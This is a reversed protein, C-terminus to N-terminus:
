QSDLTTTVPSGQAPTVSANQLQITNGSLLTCTAGSLDLSQVFSANGPHIVVVAHDVVVTTEGTASCEVGIMHPGTTSFVTGYNIGLAFGSNPHDTVDQRLGGSPITVSAGAITVTVGDVRANCTVPTNATDFAFGSLTSKGSAFDGA